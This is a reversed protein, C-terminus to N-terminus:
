MCNVFNLRKIIIVLAMPIYIGMFGHNNIMVLRSEINVKISAPRMPDLTSIQVRPRRTTIKPEAMQAVTSRNLCCVQSEMVSEGKHRKETGIVSHEAM